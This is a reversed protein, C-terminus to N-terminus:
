GLLVVYSTLDCNERDQLMEFEVNVEPKKTM